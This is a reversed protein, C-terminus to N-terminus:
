RDSRFIDLLKTIEYAVNMQARPPTTRNVLDADKGGHPTIQGKVKRLEGRLVGVSEAAM